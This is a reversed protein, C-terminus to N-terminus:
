NETGPRQFSNLSNKEVRAADNSNNIIIDFQASYTHMFVEYQIRREAHSQRLYTLDMGREKIDRGSRRQFETDGDTYVYLNLDFLDPNSFAVSMGEVIAVNRDASLVESKMFSTDITFVDLGPRLMRIDRELAAVHHAAPHCATMKDQHEENEYTYSIRTHKRVNSSIIYPDTNMYNVQERNLRNMLGNAFTTKGAAGHGSIGIVLRRDAANLWDAIERVLRDM